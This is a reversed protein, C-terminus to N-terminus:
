STEKGYLWRCGVWGWKDLMARTLGYKKLVVGWEKFLGGKPMKKCSIHVLGLGAGPAGTSGGGGM